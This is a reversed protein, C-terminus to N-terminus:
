QRLTRIYAIADLIEQDSIISDYGPMLNSGAKVTQILQFDPKDLGGGMAFDPTGPVLPAGDAGHCSACHTEYITQGRFIDAAEASPAAAAFLVIVTATVTKPLVHMSKGDSGTGPWKRCLILVKRCCAFTRAQSLVAPIAAELRQTMM